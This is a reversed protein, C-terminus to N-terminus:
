NSHVCSTSLRNKIREFGSFNRIAYAEIWGKKRDINNLDINEKDIPECISHGYEQHGWCNPCHSKVLTQDKSNGKLVQVIKKFLKM